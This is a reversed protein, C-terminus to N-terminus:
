KGAFEFLRKVGRQRFCAAAPVFIRSELVQQQRQDLVDVCGLDHLGAPDIQLLKALRNAEVEVAFELGQLHLFWVVRGWWRSGARRGARSGARGTM